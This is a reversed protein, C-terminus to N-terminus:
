KEFSGNLTINDDHARSMIFMVVQALSIISLAAQVCSSNLFVKNLYSTGLHCQTEALQGVVINYISRM